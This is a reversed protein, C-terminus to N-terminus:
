AAAPPLVVVAAAPPLPPAVLAAPPLAPPAVPAAPPLAPPADLALAPPAPVLAAGGFVTVVLLPAVARTLEFPCTLEIWVALPAVILLFACPPRVTVDSCTFAFPSCMRVTLVRRPARYT